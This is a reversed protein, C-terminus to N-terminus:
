WVICSHISLHRESVSLTSFIVDLLCPKLVKKINWKKRQENVVPDTQEPSPYTRLKLIKCIMYFKLKVTIPLKLKRSNYTCM